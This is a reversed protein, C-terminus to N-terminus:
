YTFMKSIHRMNNFLEQLNSLFYVNIVVTSVNMTLSIDFNSLCEAKLNNVIELADHDQIMETDRVRPLNFTV